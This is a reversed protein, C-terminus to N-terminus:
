GVAVDVVVAFKTGGVLKEHLFKFEFAFFFSGLKIKLFNRYLLLYHSDAVTLAMDDSICYTLIGITRLSKLLVQCSSKKTTANKM